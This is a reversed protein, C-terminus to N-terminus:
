RPRSDDRYNEFNHNHEGFNDPYVSIELHSIPQKRDIYSEAINYTPAIPLSPTEFYRGIRGSTVAKVPPAGVPGWRKV